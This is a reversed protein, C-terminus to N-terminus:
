GIHRACHGHVIAFQNGFGAVQIDARCCFCCSYGQSCLVRDNLGLSARQGHIRAAANGAAGAIINHKLRVIDKDIGTSTADGCATGDRHRRNRERAVNVQTRRCARRQGPQFHIM